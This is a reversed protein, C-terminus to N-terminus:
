PKKYKNKIIEDIKASNEPNQQKVYEAAIQVFADINESITHYKREMTGFNKNTDDRMGHMEGYLHKVYQVAEDMREPIESKPDRDIVFEPYARKDIHKKAGIIKEDLKDLVHFTNIGNIKKIFEGLERETGEGIIKVEYINKGTKDQKTINKAMGTMGLDLAIDEIASRLGAKQVKKGTITFEISYLDTM